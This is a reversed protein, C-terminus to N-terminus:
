SLILNINRDSTPIVKLRKTENGVKIPYSLDGPKVNGGFTTFIIKLAARVHNADYRTSPGMQRKAALLLNKWEMLDDEREKAFVKRRAQGPSRTTSRKLIYQVWSGNAKRIANNLLALGNATPSALAGVAGAGAAIATASLGAIGSIVPALAGFTALTAAAAIVVGVVQFGVPGFVNFEKKGAPVRESLIADVLKPVIDVDPISQLSSKIELLPPLDLSYEERLIETGIAEPDPGIKEPDRQYNIMSDYISKLGFGLTGDQVYNWSGLEDTRKLEISSSSKNVLYDVYECISLDGDNSSGTGITNVIQIESYAETVKFKNKQNYEKLFFLDLNVRPVTNISFWPNREQYAKILDDYMEESTYSTPSGVNIIFRFTTGPISVINAAVPDLLPYYTKNEEFKGSLVINNLESSVFDSKPIGLENAPYNNGPERISSLTGDANRRALGINNLPIYKM